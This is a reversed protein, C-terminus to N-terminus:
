YGAYRKNKEYEYKEKTIKMPIWRGANLEELEKSWIHVTELRDNMQVYDGYKIEEDPLFGHRELNIKM